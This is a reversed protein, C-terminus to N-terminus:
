GFSYTNKGTKNMETDWTWCLPQYETWNMETMWEHRVRQSGMAQLVGPKGDMVSERLKSLSMDMSNTIGDLWRMRRQGRRSRGEIKRLMFWNKAEPPWLIPAEADTRKAFICSQNEKPGAPQIEKCDLPSEPTKELMVTQFCWNNPAWSEKHDLEWMWVHSNSFGYNKSSSGKNAFYYETPM